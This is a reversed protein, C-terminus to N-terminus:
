PNPFLEFSLRVIGRWVSSDRVLIRAGLDLSLDGPFNIAVQPLVWQDRFQIVSDGGWEFGPRVMFAIYPAWYGASYFQSDGRGSYSFALAQDWGEWGLTGGKLLTAQAMDQTWWGAHVTVGFGHWPQPMLKIRTLYSQDGDPGTRLFDQAQLMWWDTIGVDLSARYSPEGAGASFLLKPDAELRPVTDYPLTGGLWTVQTGGFAPALAPLLLLLALSRV